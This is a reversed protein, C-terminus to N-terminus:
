GGNLTSLEAARKRIADTLRAHATEVQDRVRYITKSNTAHWEELDALTKFGRVTEEAEKAWQTALTKPNPKPAEGTSQKVASEGDDDEPAVGMGSLAYRKMYTIASGYGQADPKTAPLAYSAEIFQGSSHLLVTTIRVNGADDIEPLQIVSLGNKTLPERVADWVSALDAYKSRFHPNVADKKAGEMAGQALALATALKDIEPSKLM